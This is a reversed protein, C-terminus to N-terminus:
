PRQAPAPRGTIVFLLILALAFLGVGIVSGVPLTLDNQVFGILAMVNNFVIAALLSRSVSYVFVVGIWITSLFLCMSVTNWPEPYTLHFFGFALCSSVAAVCWAVITGRTVLSREVVNFVVGIFVLVEATSAVLLGLFLPVLSAVHAGQLYETLPFYAMGAGVAGVGAIWALERMSPWVAPFSESSLQLHRLLLAPLCVGVGLYVVLVYLGPIAAAYNGAGTHNFVHNVGYTLLVLGLAAFLIDIRM